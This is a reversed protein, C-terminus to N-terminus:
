STKVSWGTGAIAYDISGYICTNDTTFFGSEVGYAKSSSSWTAGSDGVACTNTTRVFRNGGPVYSPSVNKDSVTGCTWGSTQGRMCVSQGIVTGSWTATSTVLRAGPFIGIYFVNQATGSSLQHVSVDRRNAVDSFAVTTAHSEGPVFYTTASNCPAHGASLPGFNGGNVVIFANSCGNSSWGGGWTAPKGTTGREITLLGREVADALVSGHESAVFRDTPAVTAMVRGQRLDIWADADIGAADRAAVFDLLIGELYRQDYESAHRVLLDPRSFRDLLAEVGDDADATYSAHVQFPSWSIWLETFGPLGDLSESLQSLEPLLEAELLIEEVPVNLQRAVEAADSQTTPQQAVASDTGGALLSVGVVLAVFLPLLYRVRHQIFTM